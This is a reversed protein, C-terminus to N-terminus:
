KLLFRINARLNPRAYGSMCGTYKKKNKGRCYEDKIKNIAEYYVYVWPSSNVFVKGNTHIIQPSICSKKNEKGTFIIIYYIDNSPCTDNFVITNSDTKKLEIDLGIGGVNRFDKSQQTGAEQYTLGMDDLIKKMAQIYEREIKQTDGKTTKFKTITDSDFVSKAKDVIKDFLEKKLLEKRKNKVKIKLSYQLEINNKSSKNSINETLTDMSTKSQYNEFTEIKKNAINLQASLNNNENKLREIESKLREIEDIFNLREVQEENKMQDENQTM